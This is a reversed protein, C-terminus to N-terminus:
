EELISSSIIEKRHAPFTSLTQMTTFIFFTFKKKIKISTKKTIKVNSKWQIIELHTYEIKKVNSGGLEM